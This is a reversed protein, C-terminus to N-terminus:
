KQDGSIAAKIKEYQAPSVKNEIQLKLKETADHLNLVALAYTTGPEGGPLTGTEDYWMSAIQSKNM